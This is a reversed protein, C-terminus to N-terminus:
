QIAHVWQTICTCGNHLANIYIRNHLIVEHTIFFDHHELELVRTQNRVIINAIPHHLGM